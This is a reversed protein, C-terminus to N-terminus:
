VVATEENNLLYKYLLWMINVIVCDIGELCKGDLTKEPSDVFKGVM